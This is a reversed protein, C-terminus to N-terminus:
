HRKKVGHRFIPLQTVLYHALKGSYGFVSDTFARSTKKGSGHDVNVEPIRPLKEIDRLVKQFKDKVFEVYKDDVARELEQYLSKREKDIKEVHHDTQDELIKDCEHRFGPIRYPAYYALEHEDIFSLLLQFMNGNFMDCHMTAWLKGIQEDSVIRDTSCKSHCCTREEDPVPIQDEDTSLHIPAVKEEFRRSKRSTWAKTLLEQQVKPHMKYPIVYGSSFRREQTVFLRDPLQAPLSPVPAANYYCTLRQDIQASVIPKESVAIDRFFSKEFCRTKPYVSMWDGTYLSLDMHTASDKKAGKWFFYGQQEHTRIKTVSCGTM